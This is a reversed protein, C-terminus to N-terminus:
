LRDTRPELGQLGVLLLLSQSVEKKNQRNVYTILQTIRHKCIYIEHLYPAISSHITLELTSAASIITSLYRSLPCILRLSCYEKQSM